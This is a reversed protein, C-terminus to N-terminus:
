NTYSKHHSVLEDESSKNMWFSIAILVWLAILYESVIIIYNTPIRSLKEIFSFPLANPNIFFSLMMAVMIFIAAMMKFLHKWKEINFVPAPQVQSIGAMVNNSFDASAKVLAGESLLKRLDKDDEM